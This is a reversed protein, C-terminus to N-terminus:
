TALQDFQVGIRRAYGINAVELGCRRLHPLTSGDAICYMALFTELRNRASDM